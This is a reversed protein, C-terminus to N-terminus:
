FFKSFHKPKVTRNVTFLELRNDATMYEMM